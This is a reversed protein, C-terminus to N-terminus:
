FLEKRRVRFATIPKGAEDLPIQRLRDCKNLLFGKLVSISIVDLDRFIIKASFFSIFTIVEM